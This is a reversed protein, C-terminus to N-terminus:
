VDCLKNGLLVYLAWKVFLVAVFMITCNFNPLM